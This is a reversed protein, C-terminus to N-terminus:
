RCRLLTEFERHLVPRLASKVGGSPRQAEADLDSIQIVTLKKLDSPRKFESDDDSKQFDMDTFKDTWRFHSQTGTCHRSNDISM